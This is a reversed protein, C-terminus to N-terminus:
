RRRPEPEPVSASSALKTEVCGAEKYMNKLDPPVPGVCCLTAPTLLPSWWRMTNGDQLRRNEYWFDFLIFDKKLQKEERRRVDNLSEGEKFNVSTYKIAPSEVEAKFGGFVVVKGEKTIVIGQSFSSM